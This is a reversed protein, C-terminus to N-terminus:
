RRTTSGLDVAAHYAAFATPYDHATIRATRPDTLQVGPIQAAVEAMSTDKFALDFQVPSAVRYPKMRDLNRLSVAAASRVVEQARRPHLGRESYRGLAWKVVAGEIWPLQAKSEAVTLDDGSVMVVPVGYHGALGANSGIEGVEVGNVLLRAVTQGNLTHNLVGRAGHRVHYGPMLLAAFSSDLTSLQGYPRPIGTILDAAPHLDEALLTKCGNGGHSDSVVLETAGADLCGQIAANCEGIMLHRAYGYDYGLPNTQERHTVGAVGEMDMSIYVKM